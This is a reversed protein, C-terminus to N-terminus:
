KTKDRQRFARMSKGRPIRLHKELIDAIIARSAVTSAEAMAGYLPGKVGTIRHSEMQRDVWIKLGDVFKAYDLPDQSTQKKIHETYRAITEELLRDAHTRKADRPKFRKM